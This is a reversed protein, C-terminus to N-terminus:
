DERDGSFGDVAGSRRKMRKELEPKRGNSKYYLLVDGGTKWVHARLTALTMHHPVLQNQCYLDLYEEPKLPNPDIHEPQPEIREAIYALIKKARLMRNANLRSNSGDASAISPLLDQYPQLVFSVKVTDKFPIQNSAVTGRYLDAVGGSDLRDEQVIVTTFPPPKLIPTENPQSPVISSQLPEGPAHQLQEEYEYRIKQIIGLFNDEVIRDEKVSSTDSEEFKEDVVVPKAEVSSRGLKKPFNMRFKKSFLSSIDKPKDGKDPESSAQTLSDTQTGGPTSPGGNTVVQNQPPPNSSFYDGSTRPQSSRSQHKELSTSEEATSPLHNQAAIGPNSAPAGPTAIGIALGPTMAPYPYGNAPRPTVISGVDDESDQWRSTEFLPLSISPPANERLLGKSEKTSNGLHVRFAEDRRIEENVLNAFLYRLVWKGLNIRQDERLDTMEEIEAEDAYMEADFCYNEELVVALRGTRTDVGCWNAVSEMTNVEPMVDELHRMGFSQIPVCKLLDWMVVEGATDLTLVRKRDNLMVHKILGNQGEITEEPLSFYPVVTGYDWDLEVESPKRANSGSQITASEVDRTKPVALASAHSLRLICNLPIKKVADGNVGSQESSTHTPLKPRQVLSSARQHRPSEPLQFGASTEVDKWRNISSSSTATWFYDGAAVVKCVGQNEQALALSLGQDWDASGRTDTKAVLGSRDSSYFISLQPHDSYLSWVSDNHMSLTYMCRGAAMSWVKITQDSSATMVTDGDQNILINRVNDTHGVLKTIRKGSRPDWVRVVSEPGGSAMISGRATLAYVSGKASQEDEGVDIQLMEGGGNLDWIRIKHDLGGSAVWGSHRGPTTLCKVYDSHLGITTASQGDEAHPRWIKVTIDSSASVLATNSQALIIDNVWHTHAQVQSRFTTSTAKSSSTDPPPDDPSSFPNQLSHPPHKLDLNLDWACIAGDRGGSYNCFLNTVISLSVMSGWAIDELLTPWPFFKIHVIPDTELAFVQAPALFSTLPEACRLKHAPSGQPGNSVASRM